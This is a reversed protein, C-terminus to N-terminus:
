PMESAGEKRSGGALSIIAQTQRRMATTLESLQTLQKGEIEVIKGQLEILKAENGLVIQQNELQKAHAMHFSDIHYRTIYYGAYGIMLLLIMIIGYPGYASFKRDKGISVSIGEGDNENPKM